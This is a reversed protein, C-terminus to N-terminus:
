LSYGGDLVISTGTMTLVLDSLIFIVLNAVEVPKIEGLFQNKSTENNSLQNIDKIHILNKDSSLAGKLIANVRIGRNGCERAITKVASNLAAKSASYALKSKIGMKSSISSIAIISGADNFLDRKILCRCFEVFTFCNVHMLELMNEYKTLSLPRVKGFGATYVFGDISGEIAIIDKIKKEINNLDYINLKYYSILPNIKETDNVEDNYILIVKGKSAVIKKIIIKGLDTGNDVVIIKKKNLSIINTM